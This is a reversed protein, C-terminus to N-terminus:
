VVRSVSDRARTERAHRDFVAAAARALVRGKPTVSIWEPELEVVGDAALQRLDQWEEAFYERFDVLYALEISEISVRYHWLLAQIVARRVLDDPKLELGRTVPLRGADLAACYADLHRANQYHCPGIQGLSGCGLALVDGAHASIGRFGALDHDPRAFGDVGMYLYGARALRGIALTMLELRDESPPQGAQFDRLAVRDPALRLVDDLTRNFGDLTQGPAAYALDLSVWRLGADRANAMASRTADFDQMEIACVSKESRPFAAEIGRVLAALEDRALSEPAGLALHLENLSRAEILPALLGSEKALYKIYQTSRDGAAEGAPLKVCLSLPQSFGGINRRALWHRLEREGFAEVFREATPYSAYSPGSADYKRILVPDIVLDSAPYHM